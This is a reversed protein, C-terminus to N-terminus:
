QMKTKRWATQQSHEMKKYKRNRWKWKMKNLFFIFFIKNCKIEWNKIKNEDQM